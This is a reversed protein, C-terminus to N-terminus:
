RGVSRVQRKVPEPPAMPELAGQDLFFRAQKATMRVVQHPGHRDVKIGGFQGRLDPKHHPDTIRYALRPAVPRPARMAMRKHRHAKPM